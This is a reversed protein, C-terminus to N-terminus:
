PTREDDWVLMHPGRAGTASMGHRAGQVREVGTLADEPCAHAPTSTEELSADAGFNAVGEGEPPPAGPPTAQIGLSGGDASNEDGCATVTAFASGLLFCIVFLQKQM